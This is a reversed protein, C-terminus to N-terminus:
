STQPPWPLSGSNSIDLGASSFGHLFKGHELYRESSGSSIFSTWEGGGWLGSVGETLM